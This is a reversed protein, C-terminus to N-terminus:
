TIVVQVNLAVLVTLRKLSTGLLVNKADVLLQTNVLIADLAKYFFSSFSFSFTFHLVYNDTM